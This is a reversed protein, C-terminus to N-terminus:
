GKRRFLTMAKAQEASSILFAKISGLNTGNSFHLTRSGGITVFEDAEKKTLSWERYIESLREYKWPASTHDTEFSIGVALGQIPGGRGVITEDYAQRVVVKFGDVQYRSIFGSYSGGSAEGTDLGWEKLLAYMDNSTLYRVVKGDDITAAPIEIGGSEQPISVPKSAGAYRGINAIAWAHGAFNKLAARCAEPSTALLAVEDAIWLDGVVDIRVSPHILASYSDIAERDFNGNGLRFHARLWVQIVDESEMLDYRYTLRFTVNRAKLPMLDIGYTESGEPRIRFERVADNVLEMKRIHKSYDQPAEQGSALVTCLIATSLFMPQNYRLDVGNALPERPCGRTM